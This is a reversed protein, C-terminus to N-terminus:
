SYVHFIKHICISIGLLPPRMMSADSPQQSANSLVLRTALAARLQAASTLKKSVEHMRVCVHGVSHQGEAQESLAPAKPHEQDTRAHAYEAKEAPHRQLSSQTVWASRCRVCAAM